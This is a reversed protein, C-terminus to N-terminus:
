QLFHPWMNKQSVTYLLVARQMAICQPHVILIHNSHLGRLSSFKRSCKSRLLSSSVDCAVPQTVDRLMHIWATDGSENCARAAFCVVKNEVVLPKRALRYFNHQLQVTFDFFLNAFAIAITKFGLRTSRFPSWWVKSTADLQIGYSNWPYNKVKYVAAKTILSNKRIRTCSSPM